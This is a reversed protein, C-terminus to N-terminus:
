YMFTTDSPFTFDFVAPPLPADPEFVTAIADRTPVGGVSEELRLIAGTERDVAIRIGFDPRDAVREVSRPRACELVVAERGSVETTGAILCAGTALTNQCYGAPHIFVEPLTEMPLATIPDYIRSMGPLDPSDAGRVRPRVRRRTGVKSSSVFTRVTSGDTLWVEYPAGVGAAADSTLVKVEGPHRLWVDTAVVQEGRATWAHEEVRMRLTDFRLEADRMFTFLGGVTPLDADLAAIEPRTRGNVAVPLNGARDWTRAPPM